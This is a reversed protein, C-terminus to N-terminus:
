SGAGQIQATLRAELLPDRGLSVWRSPGSQGIVQSLDRDLPDAEPFTAGGEYIAALSPVDEIQKDVYVSVMIQDTGSQGFAVTVKRRVSQLTSELRNEFGVSDPHWLELLNSGARYETEIVGELKSERAILFHNRNLVAVAREWITDFQSAPILLASAQPQARSPGSLCGPLLGTFAVIALSQFRFRAPALFSNRIRSSVSARGDRAPVVVCVCYAPLQYSFGVPQIETATSRSSSYDPTTKTLNGARLMKDASDSHLLVLDRSAPRCFGRSFDGEVKIPM